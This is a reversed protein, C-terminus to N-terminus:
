QVVRINSPIEPVSLTEHFPSGAPPETAVTLEDMWFTQDFAEPMKVYPGIIFQNFAMDQYDPRATRFAVDIIEGYKMGDVALLIRGNASADGGASSNLQVLFELQHWAGTYFTFNGDWAKVNRYYTSYDFCRGSYADSRGNCGAVARYETSIPPNGDPVIMGPETNINNSDSIALFMRGDVQQLYFTLATTQPVASQTDKNTLLYFFLKEGAMQWAADFKMWFSIYVSESDAFTKRMYSGLGVIFDPKTNNASFKFEAASGQRSEISSLVVDTKGFWGRNTFESNDFHEVFLEQSHGHNPWVAFITCLILVLRCIRFLHKNM